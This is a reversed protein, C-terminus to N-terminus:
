YDAAKQVRMRPRSRVRVCGVGFASRAQEACMGFLCAPFPADMGQACAWASWGVAGGCLGRRFDARGAQGFRLIYTCM